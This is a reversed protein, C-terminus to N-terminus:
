STRDSGYPSSRRGHPKQDPGSFLVMSSSPRRAKVVSLPRCKHDTQLLLADHSPSQSLASCLRSNYCQLLNTDLRNSTQTFSKISPMEQHYTSVSEPSNLKPHNEQNSHIHQLNRPESYHSPSSHTCRPPPTCCEPRCGTRCM